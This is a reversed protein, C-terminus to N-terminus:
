DINWINMEFLCVLKLYIIGDMNMGDEWVFCCSFVVLLGQAHLVCWLTLISCFVIVYWWLYLGLFQTIRSKWCIAWSFFIRNWSYKMLHVYSWFRMVCWFCLLLPETKLSWVMRKCLLWRGFILWSFCECVLSWDFSSANVFVIIWYYFLLM